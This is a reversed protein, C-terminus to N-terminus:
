RLIKRDEVLMLHKERGRDINIDVYGLLTATLYVKDTCYFFIDSNTM